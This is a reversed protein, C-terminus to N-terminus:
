KPIVGTTFQTHFLYDNYKKRIFAKERRSILMQTGDKFFCTNKDIYLIFSMQVIYGRSIKLFLSSDLQKEADAFSISVHQPPTLNALYIDIGKNSSLIKQVSQIPFSYVRTKTKLELPTVPIRSREFFRVLCEQIQESTVPKVLYHLANLDFADFTFDRSTTLFAIHAEPLLTRLKRATKIGDLKHMYIDLFILQYVCGNEISQILSEGDPYCDIQSELSFYNAANQLAKKIYNTDYVSDDCLAFKM